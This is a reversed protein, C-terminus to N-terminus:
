KGGPKKGTDKKNTNAASHDKKHLEKIKGEHEVVLVYDGSQFVDMAAVKGTSDFYHMDETLHFTRNKEKGNEDKMAVTVTGAKKDIKVIKAESKKDKKADDARAGTLCLGLVAFTFLMVRVM